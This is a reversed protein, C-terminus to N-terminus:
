PADQSGAAASGDTAALHSLALSRALSLCLSFMCLLLCGVQQALQAQARTIEDVTARLATNDQNFGVTSNTLTHHPTTHHPITRTSVSLQTLSPTTHHPTTHHPTTHHPTTHHSTTHPDPTTHHPTGDHLTTTTHAITHHRTLPPTTTRYHPTTVRHTFAHRRSGACLRRSRWASLPRTTSSSKRTESGIM